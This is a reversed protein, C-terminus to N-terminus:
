SLNAAVLRATGSDLEDRGLRAYTDAHVLSQMVVATGADPPRTALYAEADSLMFFTETRDATLVHTLVIFGGVVEPAQEAYLDALLVDLRAGIDEFRGKDSPRPYVTTLLRVTQRTQELAALLDQVYDLKKDPTVLRPM